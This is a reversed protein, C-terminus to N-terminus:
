LGPPDSSLRSAALRYVDESKTQWAGLEDQCHNCEDLWGAWNAVETELRDGFVAYRANVSTQPWDEVTGGLATIIKRNWSVANAEAQAIETESNGHAELRKRCGSDGDFVVYTPVGLEELIAWSIALQTKGGTHVVAIGEADFGGTRDAIGSLLGGDTRGECILVARAFVAEALQRRLTM